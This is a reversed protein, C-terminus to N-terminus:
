KKNKIERTCHQTTNIYTFRARESVLKQNNTHQTSVSTVIKLTRLNAIQPDKKKKKKSTFLIVWQRQYFCHSNEKRSISMTKTATTNTLLPKQKSRNNEHQLREQGQHHYNEKQPTQIGM